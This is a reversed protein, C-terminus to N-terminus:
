YEQIVRFSIVRGPAPIDWGRFGGEAHAMGLVDTVRLSLVTESSGIIELDRTSLNVDLEFYGPLDEFDAGGYNSFGLSLALNSGSARRPGVYRGEVYLGLKLPAYAIDIGGGASV